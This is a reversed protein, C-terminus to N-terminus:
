KLEAWSLGVSGDAEVPVRFGEVGHHKTLGELVLAEVVDKLDQDFRLLIEDHIQLIWSVNLGADQLSRVKPRLWVMSQQLCGQALGQIKHSIAHREAEGRLKKDRGRINPLRRMMGWHDRVENLPHRRVEEIVREKWPMVGPLGEYYRDIAWQARKEDWGEIGNMRMQDCLNSAGGGYVVLFNCTKGVFRMVGGAKKDAIVEDEDVEFMRMAMTTHPDEDNRFVRCLVEDASEHALCRMEIASLDWAGLLEGGSAPLRYGARVLRGLETRSPIALLNPDASALRRTETRTVKLSCRVQVTDSGNHQGGMHKMATKCFSDRIHQREKWEFVQTVLPDKGRLHQISKKGVSMKGKPTRQTGKIGRKECLARMQPDSGPNFPAGGCFEESIQKGIEAMETTMRDALDRFYSRSAPMGQAQMEEFVPLVDMGRAMLDTLGQRELEPVMAHYIRLAADADRSAYRVADALPIDELSPGPMDGLDAVAVGKVYEDVDKWRREVDVGAKTAYDRLITAARRQVCQPRYTRVSGDNQPLEQPEPTPWEGMAVKALYRVQKHTASDGVTDMFEGMEMGAWRYALGKLNQPETKLLYAAYMTDWIRIDPKSLDLGMVRSMEVDFLANHIVCIAGFEFAQQLAEIGIRFDPQSCRLTVGTGEGISVQISWPDSPLGETDLGIGYGCFGQLYFRLDHGTGDVYNEAGLCRDEVHHFRRTGSVSLLESLQAYDWDVLAKSAPDHLGMAPHYVPFVLADKFGGRGAKEGDFCGARHPLGHVKEMLASTHGLFWRTAFGGVAVILDPRCEEIERLLVPTWLDIQEPTPDPNGVRYEKVINTRYWLRSTLGRRRLMEEQSQGSPGVFPVGRAAELKGPAEGVLMVRSPVPGTGPVITTM